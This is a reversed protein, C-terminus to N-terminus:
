LNSWDSEWAKGMDAKMVLEDAETSKPNIVQLPTIRSLRDGASVEPVIRLRTGKYVISISEGEIARGVLEFIERRFQTLTIANM